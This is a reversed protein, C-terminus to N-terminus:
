PARESLAARVTDRDSYPWRQGQIEQYAEHGKGAVLVVDGPSAALVALRIALARDAEVSVKDTAPMGRRIDDIILAPDERRPNDWTVIVRDALREAIAGMLPRKGRDRDGGCGFVCWLTGPCIERSSRLTQELGDPTHAYDVVVLPQGTGGFRELRGTVSSVKGLEEIATDLPLGLAALTAAAALLNYANFRGLIQSKFAWSRGGSEIALALGERDMAGIRGLFLVEVPPPLRAPAPELSYGFARVEAPLLALLELGFPDDLNVVASKLGPHRFLRAKAEAYASMSGHYDLHDRSLNTFVAVDFDIGAVRKQSLGHSSVEMAVSRLRRGRLEALLRQLEIADPTTMEAPSLDVIPGSGVTGIVGSPGLPSSDLAQAVFHSVSTKGNTGTIGIVRLAGSPHGYYRAAIEGVRAAL